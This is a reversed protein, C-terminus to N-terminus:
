REPRPLQRAGVSRAIEWLQKTEFDHQKEDSDLRTEVAKLRSEHQETKVQMAKLDDASAFATFAYVLVATAAGVGAIAGAAYWKLRRPSEAAVELQEGM